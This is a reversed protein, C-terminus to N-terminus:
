SIRWIRVGGETSIYRTIFSMDKTRRTSGKLSASVNKSRKKSCLVLFSDGVEMDNFPYKRKTGGRYQNPIPIGKEIEYAM